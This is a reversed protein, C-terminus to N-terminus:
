AGSGNEVLKKLKGGAFSHLTATFGEYYAETSVLEMKKDGDFDAVAKIECKNFADKTFQAVVVKSGSRILVASFDGPRSKADITGLGKRSAAEVLTEVRGDGDLDVAYAKLILPKSNSIKKTKLWSSVWPQCSKGEIAKVSRPVTPILRYVLVDAESEPQTLFAGGLEEQAEIGKAVCSRGVKGIGVELLKLQGSGAGFRSTVGLWKGGEHRAIVQGNVSVFPSATGLGLLIWAAAIM